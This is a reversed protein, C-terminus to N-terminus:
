GLTDAYIQSMPVGGLGMGGGMLPFVVLLITEIFGEGILAGIAGGVIIATALGIVLPITFRIGAKILIKSDISLISGTILGAIYFSLFGGDHMFDTIMLPTDSTMWSMHMLFASGFFAVIAGGGLYSRLLPTRDGIWGFFEGLVMMLLLAGVMGAPLKGTYMAFLTIAVIILFWRIPMNFITLKTQYINQLKEQKSM